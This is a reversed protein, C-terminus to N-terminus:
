LLVLRALVDPNGKLDDPQHNPVVACAHMCTPEQSADLDTHGALALLVGERGVAPQVLVLGISTQLHLKVGTLDHLDLFTHLPSPPTMLM